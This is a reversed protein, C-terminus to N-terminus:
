EYLAIYLGIGNVFILNLNLSEAVEKEEEIAQLVDEASLSVYFYLNHAREIKDVATSFSDLYKIDTGCLKNFAELSYTQFEAM